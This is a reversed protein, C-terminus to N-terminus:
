SVPNITVKLISAFTKGADRIIDATKSHKSVLVALIAVGVISVAVSVIKNITENM